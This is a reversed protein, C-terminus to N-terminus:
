FEVEDDNFTNDDSRSPPLEDPGDLDPDREELLKDGAEPLTPDCFVIVWGKKTFKNDDPLAQAFSPMAENKELQRLEPKAQYTDVCEVFREEIDENFAMAVSEHCKEHRKKGGRDCIELKANSVFGSWLNRTSEAKYHIAKRRYVKAKQKFKKTEAIQKDLEVLTQKLETRLQDREVEATSLEETLREIEAEMERWRKVAKKRKEEDEIDQAKMEALAAEREALQAQLDSVRRQAKMAKTEGDEVLEACIELLEEETLQEKVIRTPTADRFTLEDGGDDDGFLGCGAVLSLLAAAAARRVPPM